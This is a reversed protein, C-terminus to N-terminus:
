FTSRKCYRATSVKRQKRKQSQPIHKHTHLLKSSLFLATICFKFVKTNCNEDERFTVGEERIGDALAFAHTM